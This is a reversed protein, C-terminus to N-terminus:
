YNAKLWNLVRPNFDDLKEWHFAHGANDYLHLESNSIGDSVERVMWEPVFMDQKGGIVLTPSKIQSLQAVVNHNICAEAQAEM